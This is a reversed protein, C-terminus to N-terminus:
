LKSVQSSRNVLVFLFIAIACVGVMWMRSKGFSKVVKADDVDPIKSNKLKKVIAAVRKEARHM